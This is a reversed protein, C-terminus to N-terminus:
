HWPQWESIREGGDWKKGDKEREKRKKNKELDIALRIESLSPEVQPAGYVFRTSRGDGAVRM